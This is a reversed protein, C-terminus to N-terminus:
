SVWFVVGNLMDSYMRETNATGLNAAGFGLFNSQSSFHHVVRQGSSIRKKLLLEQLWFFVCSHQCFPKPSKSRLVLRESFSFVLDNTIDVVYSWGRPDRSLSNGGCITMKEEMKLHQETLGLTSNEIVTVKKRLPCLESSETRILDKAQFCVMSSRMDSARRPKM